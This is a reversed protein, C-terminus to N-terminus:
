GKSGDSVQVQNRGSDKARYLAADAHQLVIDFSSDCAQKEALGISVTVHFLTGESSFELQEVAKRIREAGLLAYQQNTEPYLVAFEEGGLRGFVDTERMVQQCTDALKKLVEDGKAHGYTDNILKFHDIDIMLTNLPHKYRLSLKWAKEAAALFARRNCVGTLADTTAMEHLVHQMRKRETVDDILCHVMSVKGSSDRTVHGNLEIDILTGDCCLLQLEENTSINEGKFMLAIHDTFRLKSQAQIHEVCATGIVQESQYGSMKCWAPNVNRYCGAKDLSIYGLPLSQFLSKLYAEHQQTIYNNKSIKLLFEIKHQLLPLHIPNIIFDAVGAEFAHEIYSHQPDSTIMLVPSYEARDLERMIKAVELGDILPIDAELLVLPPDLREFIKIAEKGDKAELVSYDNKELFDCLVSRLGADGVAVLITRAHNEKM